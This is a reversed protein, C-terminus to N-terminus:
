NNTTEGEAAEGDAAEGEAEGEAAADGGDTQETAADGSASDDGGGSNGMLAFILWIVLIVAVAILIWRWISSNSSDAM